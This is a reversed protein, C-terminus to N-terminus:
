SLAIAVAHPLAAAVDSALIPHGHSGQPVGDVSLIGAAIRAATGHLVAGSAACRVLEELTPLRAIRASFQAVVTGIVGGLVDGTGATALWPTGARVVLTTDPSTVITEAGKLLLVGGLRTALEQAGACTAAPTSGHAEALRVFEGAHPTAVFPTTVAGAHALAGADIVLPTNEESTPASAKATAADQGSGWVTAHAPGPGIVTEPRTALVMRALDQDGHWRVYGAGSRWAGEASLIAAGPYRVSGTRLAVIGRTSKHDSAVPLRLVEGVDRLTWEEAANMGGRYEPLM